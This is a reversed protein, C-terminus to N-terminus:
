WRTRGLVPPCPKPTFGAFISPFSHETQGSSNRFHNRPESYLLSINCRYQTDMSSQRGFDAEVDSRTRGLRGKEGNNIRKNVPIYM